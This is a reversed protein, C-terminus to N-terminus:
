VENCQEETAPRAAVGAGKTVARPPIRKAVERATAAVNAALRLLIARIFAGGRTATTACTADREPRARLGVLSSAGAIPMARFRSAPLPCTM